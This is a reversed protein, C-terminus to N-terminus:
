EQEQLAPWLPRTPHNVISISCQLALDNTVDRFSGKGIENYRKVSLTYLGSKQKDFSARLDTSPLHQQRCKQKKAM